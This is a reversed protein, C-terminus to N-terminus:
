RAPTAPAYRVKLGSEKYRGVALHWQLIGAMWDKLKEAYGYLKARARPDLGLDACLAPLDVATLHGFQHMREVMLANVVDRAALRDCGLYRQMVFVMNHVEDEYEIEKQYSFVDNVFCAYDQAANDIQRMVRHDYVEDPVLNGHAMRALATTLGSGFTERRMEVYDVPDPVRNQWMNILEWVWAEVMDLVGRRLRVRSREDMPPASRAWLDALGRELPSQPPPTLGLDLPMFDALRASQAKVGALDKGRGYHLPYLDDGYTGWVLWDSSLYLQEPDADHHIMAACYALDYSEFNRPDWGIAPHDLYGMAAAWRRTHERAKALHPSVRYAYPMYFRPLPLHGVRRGYPVHAFQAARPRLGLSDMSLTFRDQKSKQYRSSRMHWEHGGSQWDQLGKIYLALATQEEPTVAHESVMLPIETLATHEFQQIRSTLLDNVLGAARRTPVNLFQEFVLVANANEGERAVERQYSFLDNRLHVADSFTDCLVRIPRLGTLRDPLEAGAAHEVLSASWPAGGVRRRMEVYEIPNAVRRRSINDLEWLSEYYLNHSTQTFRRIWGPSHGPVTRAWLDALGREAPDRPTLGHGSTMFLDLRRLHERAGVSDRRYKYRDLFHDDFFFILVYWDTLLDLTSEDCDPHTYACLKAYDHADLDEQTWVACDLMGMEKAWTNSHDRAHQEHHNLRAPYAIYFDPLDFAAM